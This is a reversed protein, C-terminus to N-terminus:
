KRCTFRVTVCQAMRSVTSTGSTVTTIRRWCESIRPSAAPFAKWAMADACNQNYASAGIREVEVRVDGEVERYPNTDSWEEGLTPITSTDISQPTVNGHAFAMQTGFFGLLAVATIVCINREVKEM